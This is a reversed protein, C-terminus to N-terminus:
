IISLMVDDAGGGVSLLRADTSRHLLEIETELEALRFHVSQHYLVPMKFIKRQRTFQITEQIINDMM